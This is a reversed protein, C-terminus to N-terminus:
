PKANLSKRFTLNRTILVGVSSAGLKLFGRAPSQEPIALIEQSLQLKVVNEFGICAFWFIPVIFLM